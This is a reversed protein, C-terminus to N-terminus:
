LHTVTLVKKGRALIRRISRPVSSCNWHRNRFQHQCELTAIKAGRQAERIMEPEKTCFSKVKRRYRRGNNGGGGNGGDNDTVGERRSKGPIFNVSHDRQTKSNRGRRCVRAPDLLMNGTSTTPSTYGTISSLASM